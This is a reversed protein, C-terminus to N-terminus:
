PASLISIPEIFAREVMIVIILDPNFRKAINKIESATVQSYHKQLTHSFTRTMYVSVATDFSDRLVLVRKKNLAHANTVLLWNDPTSDMIPDGRYLEKGTLYDNETVDGQIKLTPVFDIDRVLRDASLFRALDGGSQGVRSFERPLLVLPSLSSNEEVLTKMMESYALYGGYQNWHTDTKYYTLPNSPNRNSKKLQATPNIVLDSTSIEQSLTTYPSDAGHSWTPLYQSYVTSKESGILLHFDAGYNKKFYDSWTLLNRKIESAQAVNDTFGIGRHMSLLQQYDDGLFLWGSRGIITQGPNISFGVKAGLAGALARIPKGSIVDRGKADYITINVLITSIIMLVALAYLAINRKM